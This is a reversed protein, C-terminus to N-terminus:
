MSTNRDQLHQTGAEIALMMLTDNVVNKENLKDLCCADPREACVCKKSRCHWVKLCILKISFM